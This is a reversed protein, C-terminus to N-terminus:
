RLRINSRIRLPVSFAALDKEKAPVIPSKLAADLALDYVGGLGVYVPELASIKLEKSARVQKKQSYM